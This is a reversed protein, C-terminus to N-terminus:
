VLTSGRAWANFKLKKHIPIIVYSQILLSYIWLIPQCNLHYLLFCPLSFYLLHYLLINRSIYFLNVLSHATPRDDLGDIFFQMINSKLYSYYSQQHGICPPTSYRLRTDNLLGGNNGDELDRIWINLYRLRRIKQINTSDIRVYM